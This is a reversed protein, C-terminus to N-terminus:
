LYIIFVNPDANALLLTEIIEKNENWAASMLATSGSPDKMNVDVKQKLLTKILDLNNSKSADIINIPLEIRNDNKVPQIKEGPYVGLSNKTKTAGRSELINIIDENDKEYAFHLATNKRLNQIQKYYIYLIYIYM